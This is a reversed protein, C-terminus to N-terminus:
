LPCNWLYKTLMKQLFETVSIDNWPSFQILKTRIYFMWTSELQYGWHKLTQTFLKIIVFIKRPSTTSTLIFPTLLSDLMKDSGMCGKFSVIPNCIQLFSRPQSRSENCLQDIARRMRCRCTHAWPASKSRQLQM